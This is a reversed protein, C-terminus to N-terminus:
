LCAPLNFGEGGTEMENDMPNEMYIYIDMISYCASTQLGNFM